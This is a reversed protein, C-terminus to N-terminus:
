DPLHRSSAILRRHHRFIVKELAETVPESVGVFRLQSVREGGRVEEHDVSCPILLPQPVSANIYLQLLGTTGAPPGDLTWELGSASLRIRYMKPLANQRMTLEAALRLLINLKFELRQLEHLLAPSEEKLAETARTEEISAEAILLQMNDANLNALETGVALAGPLWALPRTDDLILGDGFFSGAM